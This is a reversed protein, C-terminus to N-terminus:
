RSSVVRFGLYSYRFTPTYNLRSTVRSYRANLGWSGGRYVRRLGSAPGRPDTVASSNYSGYWDLCWEWVNGSMDYLGLENPLKQAVPHTRGNSDDEFWAVEEITNSGAYIYNKSKDGGRAAYEWEAETPLRYVKGTLGNLKQIFKQVNDWSVSEIPCDDCGKFYNPDNGMVAQWQAQTIETAAMYFSNVTVSHVPKEDDYGDNSGMHFTGGTVAVMKINLGAATETYGASPIGKVKFVINKGNLYGKKQMVNWLITHNGAPIGDGTDGSVHRLPGTFTKGGDESVYLALNDAMCSLTYSVVIGDGKQEARRVDTITQAPLLLPYLLLLLTSIHKKM